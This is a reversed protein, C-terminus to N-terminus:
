DILLGGLLFGVVIGFWTRDNKEEIEERNIIKFLRSICMITICLPFLITLIFYSIVLFEM